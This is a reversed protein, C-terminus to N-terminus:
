PEVAEDDFPGVSRDRDPAGTAGRRVRAAGPVGGAYALRGRTAALVTVAAAGVVLFAIVDGLTTRPTLEGAANSGAHAVVALLIRGGTGNVLWLYVVGLPVLVLTTLWFRLSGFGLGHQYTGEVFYLPLHWLAWAVGIGVAAWVPRARRQWADSAAGRWGPEEVLGAVLAFVLVAAVAGVRYEPRTADAGALWGVGAGIVAPAVAVVVVTVWWRAPIGRPDWVRRLLTRRYSPGGRQAVWVAGLLPGLGGALFLLSALVTRPEPLVAATWWLSWTWAFTVVLYGAASGGAHGAPRPVESM